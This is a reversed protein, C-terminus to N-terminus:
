SIHETRAGSLLGRVVPNNLYHSPFGGGLVLKLMVVRAQLSWSHIVISMDQIRLKQRYGYEAYDENFATSYGPGKGEELSTIISKFSSHLQRRDRKSISKSSEKQLAHLRRLLGDKDYRMNWTEETEEEYERASELILAINCGAAIQVDVESSDLQETFAEMAETSRDELDDLGSAVFGWAQLAETVVPGSDGADITHGDSQIIEMLFDLFEEAATVSGGGCMTSISMARIAAVRISENSDDDYESNGCLTQLVPYVRDHINEAGTTIITMTLAKLAWLVGQPTRRGRVSKLLMPLLENMQAEIEEAEPHHRLLETYATLKDERDQGSDRKQDLLDVIHNHLIEQPPTPGTDDGDESAVISSALSDNYEYDSSNDEEESAHRSTARSGARSGARSSAPSPQASQQRSRAKRSVTKGSEFIKKRLDHM